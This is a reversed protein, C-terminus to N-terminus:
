VWFLMMEEVEVDEDEDDEEEEEECVERVGTGCRSLLAVDIQMTQSKQQVLGSPTCVRSVEVSIEFHGHGHPIQRCKDLITSQLFDYLTTQSDSVWHIQPCHFQSQICSFFPLLPM